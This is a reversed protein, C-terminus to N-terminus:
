ERIDDLKRFWWYSAWSVVLMFGLAAVYYWMGEHHGALYHEVMYQLLIIQVSLLAIFLWWAMRM